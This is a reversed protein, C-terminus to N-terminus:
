SDVSQTAQSASGTEILFSIAVSRANPSYNTNGVCSQGTAINLHGLNASGTTIFANTVTCVDNSQIGIQNSQTGAAGSITATGTPCNAVTTPLQGNNNSEFTQIASLVNAADHKIANNHSSRNLAPVALFVILFILAAIALVILVEIITFGQERKQKYVNKM